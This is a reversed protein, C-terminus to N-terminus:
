FRFIFKKAYQQTITSAGQLTKGNKINIYFAKIIRFFDFGFHEYFHKDETSITAEILNDSINDLSVWEKAESGKFFVENNTDYLIMSNANNIVVKPSFKVYLFGGIIFIFMGFLGLKFCKFIFKRMRKM